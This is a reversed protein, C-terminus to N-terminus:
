EPPEVAYLGVASPDLAPKPWGSNPGPRLSPAPLMLECLLLPTLRLRDMSCVAESTVVAGIADPTPSDLLPGSVTILENAPRLWRLWRRALPPLWNESSGGSWPRQTPLPTSSSTMLSTM